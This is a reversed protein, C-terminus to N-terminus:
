PIVCVCVCVCTHTHTHIYVYINYVCVYVYVYTHMYIYTYMYTYVYMYLCRSRPSTVPPSIPTLSTNEIHFTNHERYLIHERYVQEEALDSAPQDSDLVQDCMATLPAVQTLALVHIREEYSVVQDCM